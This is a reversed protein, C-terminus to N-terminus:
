HLESALKKRIDSYADEHDFVSISAAGFLCNGDVHVPLPVHTVPADKPYLSIPLLTRVSSPPVLNCSCKNVLVWAM